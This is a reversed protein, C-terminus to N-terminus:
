PLNPFRVVPNNDISAPLEFVWFGQWPTLTSGTTIPAYDGTGNRLTPDFTFAVNGFVNEVRANPAGIILDNFGDGNVDGAAGASFGARDFQSGCTVTFGNADDLDSLRLSRSDCLNKDGFVM